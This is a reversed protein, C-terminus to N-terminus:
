ELRADFTYRFQTPNIIEYERWNALKSVGGGGVERRDWGLILLFFLDHSVVWEYKCFM